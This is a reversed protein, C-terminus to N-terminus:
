QMRSMEHYVYVAGSTYSVGTLQVDDDEDDRDSADLYAQEHRHIINRIKNKMKESVFEEMERREWQLDEESPGQGEEEEEENEDDACDYDCNEDMSSLESVMEDNLDCGVVGYPQHRQQQSEEDDDGLSLIHSANVYQEVIDLPQLTDMKKSDRKRGVDACVCM